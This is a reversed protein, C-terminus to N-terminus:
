LRELQDTFAQRLQGSLRFGRQMAVDLMQKAEAPALHNKQVAMLLLGVFGLVPIGMMRAISRGKKEDVLLPLRQEKAVTLAEAEGADLLLLLQDCAARDVVSVRELFAMAEMHRVVESDGALWERYVAEPLLIRDFCAGLLDLRQQASLVILVTTDSVVASM